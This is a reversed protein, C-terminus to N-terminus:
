KETINISRPQAYISEMAWHRTSLYGTIGASHTVNSLLGSHFCPTSWAFLKEDEMLQNDAKNQQLLQCGLTVNSIAWSKSSLCEQFTDPLVSSLNWDRGRMLSPSQWIYRETVSPSIPSPKDPRHNCSKDRSWSSIRFILFHLLSELNELSVILM